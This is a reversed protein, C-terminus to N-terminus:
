ASFNSRQRRHSMSSHSYKRMHSLTPNDRGESKLRVSTNTTLVKDRMTNPQDFSRKHTHKHSHTTSLGTSGTNTNHLTKIQERTQKFNSALKGFM